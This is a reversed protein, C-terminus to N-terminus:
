RRVAVWVQVEREIEDMVEGPDRGGVPELRFTRRDRGLWCRAASVFTVAPRHHVCWASHLVGADRLRAVVEAAFIGEALVLDESRATVM